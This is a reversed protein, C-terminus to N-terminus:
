NNNELDWIREELNYLYIQMGNFQSVLLVKQMQSIDYFLPNKEIFDNLENVKKSLDSAEKKLKKILEKM